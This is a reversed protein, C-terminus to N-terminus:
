SANICQSAGRRSAGGCSLTRVHAHLESGVTDPSDGVGVQSRRECEVEPAGSGADEAAGLRDDASVGTDRRRHELRREDRPEGALADDDVTEADHRRRDDGELGCPAAAQPRHDRRRVVRVAVVPDLQEVAAARLEGVGQLLADLGVDDGQRHRRHLRRLQDVDLVARRIAVVQELEELPAPEVPHPDDDVSGISRAAPDGPADEGARAGVDDGDVILRVAAVDVLAAACRVRRRQRHRHPGM